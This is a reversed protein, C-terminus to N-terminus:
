QALSTANALSPPSAITPKGMEKQGPKLDFYNPVVIEGSLLKAKLGDVENLVANSILGQNCDDMAAEVGDEALGYFKVVGGKFSGDV